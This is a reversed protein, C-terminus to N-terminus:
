RQPEALMARRHETPHACAEKRPWDIEAGTTWCESARFYVGPDGVFFCASLLNHFGLGSLELFHIRGASTSIPLGRILEGYRRTRGSIAAQM